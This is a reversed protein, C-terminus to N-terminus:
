KRVDAAPEIKLFRRFMIVSIRFASTMPMTSPMVSHSGTEEVPWMIKTSSNTLSATLGSNRSSNKTTMWIPAMQATSM